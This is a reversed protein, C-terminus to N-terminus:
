LILQRGGAFAVVDEYMILTPAFQPALVITSREAGPSDPNAQDRFEIKQGTPPSTWRPAGTKLDLSQIAQGDHYVVQREDAAVTLPMIMGASHEWLTKGTDPDVAVLRMKEGQGRRVKAATNPNVLVVLIGDSLYFEEASGTQELTRILEGTVADLM